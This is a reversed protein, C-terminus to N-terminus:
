GRIRKEVHGMHMRLTPYGIVKKAKSWSKWEVAEIHEELQPTFSTSKTKMEYWYTQKVSLTTKREYAHLTYGLPQIIEVQDIGVEERVERAACSKIDEGEDLKGKPLDWLGKRFIMLLERERKGKQIVFGGGALVREPIRYPSVNMIARVPIKSVRIEKEGYWTGKVDLELPNLVLVAEKSQSKQEELIEISSTVRVKSKIGKKSISSLEDLPVRYFFLM